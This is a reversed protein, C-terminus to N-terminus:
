QLGYKEILLKENEIIFNIDDNIRNFICDFEEPKEIIKYQYRFSAGYKLFQIGKRRAFTSTFFIGDEILRRIKGEVDKSEIFKRYQNNELQIGLKTGKSFEFYFDITAKQHNIGYRTTIETAPFKKSFVHLLHSARIKQYSEWLKYENLLRYLEIQFSIAFDYIDGLEFEKAFQSLNDIFAKYDEILLKHYQDEIKTFCALRESLEAYTITRWGTHRIEPVDLLTLLIFDADNIGSASQIRRLQDYNAFDKVKNEIIAVIYSGDFIVLDAVASEKNHKFRHERAISIKNRPNYEPLFLQVFCKENTKSLWFIFNSHFLEKSSCFLHFMPSSLMESIILKIKNIDVM